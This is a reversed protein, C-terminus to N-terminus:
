EDPARGAPATVATGGSGNALYDPGLFWKISIGDDGATVDGVKASGIFALVDVKGSPVSRPWEHKMRYIAYADAVGDDDRHVAYMWPKDKDEGVNTPTSTRLYGVAKVM